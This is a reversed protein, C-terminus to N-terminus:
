LHLSNTIPKLYYVLAAGYLSSAGSHLLLLPADKNLM